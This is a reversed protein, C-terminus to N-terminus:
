GKIKIRYTNICISIYSGQKSVPERYLQIFM